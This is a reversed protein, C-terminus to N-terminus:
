KVLRLYYDEGQPELYGSYGDLATLLLFPKMSRASGDAFAVNCLGGHRFHYKPPAYTNLYYWEELMPNSATAPPQWVNIQACDAWTITAGPNDMSCWSQSIPGAGKLMNVNIGYGYSPKDFKRKVYPANYDFAPCIEIGGFHDFYPELAAKSKDLPRSGETGGNTEMGWYWLHGGDVNQHYDFFQGDNDEMYQLFCMNLQRINNICVVRKAAVLASQYATFTVSALITIITVTVLLEILTFARRQM